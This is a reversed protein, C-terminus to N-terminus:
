KKTKDEKKLKEFNIATKSNKFLIPRFLSLKHFNLVEVGIFIEM